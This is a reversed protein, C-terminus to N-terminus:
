SAADTFTQKGGFTADAVATHSVVNVSVRHPVVPRPIEVDQRQDDRGFFPLREFRADHLARSQKVAHEAIQIALLRQELVTEYRRRQDKTLAPKQPGGVTHLHGAAYMQMNIRSIQHAGGVTAPPHHRIACLRRRAGTIRQFVPQHHRTGKRREVTIEADLVDRM